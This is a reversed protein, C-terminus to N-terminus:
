HTAAFEIENAEECTDLVCTPRVHPSVLVSDDKLSSHVCHLEKECAPAGQRVQRTADDANGAGSIHLGACTPVDNRKTCPTRLRPQNRRSRRVCQPGARKFTPGWCAFSARSNARPTCPTFSGPGIHDGTHQTQSHDTHRHHETYTHTCHTCYQGHTHINAPSHSASNSLTLRYRGSCRWCRTLPRQASEARRAAAVCRPAYARRLWRLGPFSRGM